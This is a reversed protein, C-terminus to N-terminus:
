ILRNMRSNSDQLDMMDRIIGSLDATSSKLSTSTRFNSESYSKHPKGAIENRKRQKRINKIEVERNSLEDQLNKMESSHNKHIRQM